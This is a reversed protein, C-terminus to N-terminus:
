EDRFIGQRYIVNALYTGKSSKLQVWQSGGNKAMIDTSHLTSYYRNLGNLKGPYFRFEGIEKGASKGATAVVKFAKVSIKSALM